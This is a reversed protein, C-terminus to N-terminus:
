NILTCVYFFIQLKKFNNLIIYNKNLENKKYNNFFIQKLQKKSVDCETYGGYTIYNNNQNEKILFINNNNCILDTINKYEEFNIIKKLNNNNDVYIYIFDDFNNYFKLLINSNINNNSKKKCFLDFSELNNIKFSCDSNVFLDNFYKKNKIYIKIIKIIKNNKENNDLLLYKLDNKIYKNINTDINTNTNTDTNTNTKIINVNLYSPKHIIFKKNINTRETSKIGYKNKLIEVRDTIGIINENFNKNDNKYNNNLYLWKFNVTYKKIYKIFLYIISIIIFICFTYIIYSIM